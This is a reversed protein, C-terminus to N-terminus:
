LARDAKIVLRYGSGRVTAISVRSTQIQEFKARLYGIYVDVVNPDGDFTSGWVQQLLEARTRLDGPREALSNLLQFERGTLEATREVAHVACALQRRARQFRVDGLDTTATAVASARRHLAELRAVLEEFAFPKVLFDDAGSRLGLVKEGSSGRATLMLVPTMRGEARWVRLLSLGDSDPLGWDLVIVDYDAFQMRERAEAATAVRDVLHGEETLGRHLLQGMRPEDEVVLLKM